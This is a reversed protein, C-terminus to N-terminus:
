IRFLLISAIHGIHFSTWQLPCFFLCYIDINSSWQSEGWRTSMDPNTEGDAVGARQQTQDFQEPQLGPSATAFVSLYYTNEPNSFCESGYRSAAPCGWSSLWGSAYLELVVFVFCSLFAAVSGGGRPQSAEECFGEPTPPKENFLSLTKAVYRPALSIGRTETNGGWGPRDSGGVASGVRSSSTAPVAVGSLLLGHAFGALCCILCWFSERHFRVAASEALSGAFLHRCTLEGDWFM